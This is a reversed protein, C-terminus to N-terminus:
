VSMEIFQDFRRNFVRTGMLVKVSAKNQKIVLAPKWSNIEGDCQDFPVKVM